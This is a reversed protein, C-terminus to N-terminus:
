APRPLQERHQDERERFLFVQPMGLRGAGMPALDYPDVGLARLGTAADAMLAAAAAKRSKRGVHRAGRAWLYVSAYLRYRAGADVEGPELRDVRTMARRATILGTVALVARPDRKQERVHDVLAAGAVLLVVAVPAWVGWFVGRAPDFLPPLQTAM